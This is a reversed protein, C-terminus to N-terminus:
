EPISPPKPRAKHCPCVCINRAKEYVYYRKCFNHHERKCADFVYRHTRKERAEDSM